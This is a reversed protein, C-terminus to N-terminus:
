FDEVSVVVTLIEGAALTNKLAVQLSWGTKLPLFAVGSSNMELCPFNTKNLGNVQNVIGNFGANAPVDLHGFLFRTTGNFLYFLADADTTSSSTVAISKILSDDAGATYINKITTTDANTFTIGAANYGKTLFIEKQKAM